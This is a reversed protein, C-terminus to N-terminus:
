LFILDCLNNIVNLDPIHMINDDFDDFLHLDEILDILYLPCLSYEDFLDSLNKM